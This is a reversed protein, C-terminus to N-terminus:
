LVDKCMMELASLMQKADDEDEDDGDEDDNGCEWAASSAAATSQYSTEFSSLPPAGSSAKSWAVRTLSRM